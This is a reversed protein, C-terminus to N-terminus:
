HVKQLVPHAHMCLLCQPCRFGEKSSVMDVRYTGTQRDTQGKKGAQHHPAGEQWRMNVVGHLETQHGVAEPLM